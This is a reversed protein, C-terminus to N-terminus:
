RDHGTQVPGVEPSPTSADEDAKRPKKPTLAYRVAAKRLRDWGKRWGADDTPKVELLNLCAEVLVQRPTQNKQRLEVDVPLGRELRRLHGPCL